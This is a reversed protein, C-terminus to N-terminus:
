RLPRRWRALLLGSRCGRQRIESIDSPNSPIWCSRRRRRQCRWRRGGEMPRRSPPILLGGRRRRPPRRRQRGWHGGEGDGDWTRRRCARPSVAGARHAVAARRLRWGGARM